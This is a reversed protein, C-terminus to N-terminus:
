KTIEGCGCSCGSCVGACGSKKRDRRIKLIIATVIGLLVLVVAITGLNNLLMNDGVRRAEPAFTYVFIGGDFSVGRNNRSWFLRYVVNWISLYVAVRYLGFRVSLWNGGLVM